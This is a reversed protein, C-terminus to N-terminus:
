YLRGHKYCSKHCCNSQPCSLCFERGVFNSQSVSKGKDQFIAQVQKADLRRLLHLLINLLSM